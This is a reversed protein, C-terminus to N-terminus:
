RSRCTERTSPVGDANAAPVLNGRTAGGRQRSDCGPARTVIGEAHSGQRPAIPKTLTSSRSKSQPLRSGSQDICGAALSAQPHHSSLLYLPGPERCCPQWELLPLPSCATWLSRGEPRIGRFVVIGTSLWAGNQRPSNCTVRASLRGATKSCERTKSGASHLSASCSSAVTLPWAFDM